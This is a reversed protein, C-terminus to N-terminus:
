GWGSTGRIEAHRPQGYRLPARGGSARKVCHSALKSNPVSFISCVLNRFSRLESKLGIKNWRKTRHNSCLEVFLCSQANFPQDSFSSECWSALKRGLGIQSALEIDTPGRDAVGQIEQFLFAFDFAFGPSPPNEPM